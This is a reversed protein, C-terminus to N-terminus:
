LLNYGLCKRLLYKSGYPYTLIIAFLQLYTHLVHCDFLHATILAFFPLTERLRNKRPDDKKRWSEQVPSSYTSYPLTDFGQVGPSCWFLQYISTWGVFFQILLYQNMAMYIWGTKLVSLWNIWHQHDQSRFIPGFKSAFDGTEIWMAMASWHVRPYVLSTAFWGITSSKGVFVWLKEM